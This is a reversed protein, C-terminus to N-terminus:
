RSKTGVGVDYSSSCGPKSQGTLGTAYRAQHGLLRQERARNRKNRKAKKKRKVPGHYDVAVGWRGTKADFVFKLDGAQIPGGKGSNGRLELTTTYGNGDIVHKAGRVWWKGGKEGSIIPGFNKLTMATGRFIRPDGVLELKMKWRNQIQRARRVMAKQRARPKIAKIVDTPTIAKRAMIEKVTSSAVSRRKLKADYSFLLNKDKDHAIVKVGQLNTKYDGEVGWKLLDPGKFYTLERAPARPFGFSHFHFEDGEVYFELGASDALRELAQWLSEDTATEFSDMWWDQGTLPMVSSGRGGEVFVKHLRYGLADAAKEALTSVKSGKTGKIRKNAGTRLHAAVKHCNAEMIVVGAADGMPSVTDPARVGTGKIKRLVADYPRPTLLGDYGWTIRLKLGLILVALNMALGDSNDFHLEFRPFKKPENIYAFHVLRNELQRSTVSKPGSLIKLRVHPHTANYGGISM